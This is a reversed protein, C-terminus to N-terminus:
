PAKPAAEEAAPNVLPRFSWRVANSGDLRAIEALLLQGQRWYRIRQPFSNRANSFEVSDEGSQTMPFEVAADGRPQAYFSIRGDPKVVIRTSEWMELKSGFGTRAMGLMMGGRPLTWVEDSWNAGDQMEWAGAMWGPLESRLPANSDQAALPAAALWVAAILSLLYRTFRPM